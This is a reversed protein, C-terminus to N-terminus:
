ITPGTTFEIPQQQPKTRTRRLAEARDPRAKRLRGPEHGSMDVEFHLIGLDSVFAAATDLSAFMRVGGRTTSLVRETSGLRISLAFGRDQGTVIAALSPSAQVLERLVPEKITPQLGEETM